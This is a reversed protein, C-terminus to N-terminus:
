TRCMTIFFLRQAHSQSLTKGCFYKGKKNLQHSKMLIYLMISLMMFQLRIVEVCRTTVKASSHTYRGSPHSAEESSQACQLRLKMEAMVSGPMHRSRLHHPNQHEHPKTSCSGEERNDGSSEGVGLIGRGVEAGGPGVEALLKFQETIEKLTRNVHLEPRRRFSVKCIPCLCAKSGAAM